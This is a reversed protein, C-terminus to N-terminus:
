VGPALAYQNNPLLVVTLGCMAQLIKRRYARSGAKVIGSDPNRSNGILQSEKLCRNRLALVIEHQIRERMGQAEPGDPTEAKPEAWVVRSKDVWDTCFVDARPLGGTREPQRRPTWVRLSTSDEPDALKVEWMAGAAAAVSQSGYYDSGEAKATHHSWVTCIGADNTHRLIRGIELEKADLGETLAFLSDLILLKAGVRAIERYLGSFGEPDFVSYRGDRRVIPLRPTYWYLPIAGVQLARAIQQFREVSAVHDSDQTLFMVSAQACPFKGFVPLGAAVEVALTQLAWSKGANPQAYVINPRGAALRLGECVWSVPPIQAAQIDAWDAVDPSSSTVLVSAVERREPEAPGKPSTSQSRNCPLVELVAYADSSKRESCHAHRCSFLGLGDDSPLIGTGSEDQNTHEHAWPCRVWVGDNPGEGRLWGARKFMAYLLTSEVPSTAEPVASEATATLRREGRLTRWEILGVDTPHTPLFAPQARNRIHAGPFPDPLKGHLVPEVFPIVFRWHPKGDVMHNHTTWGFGEYQDLQAWDPEADDYDILAFGAPGTNKASRSGECPGAVIYGAGGKHCNITAAAREAIFDRIDDLTDATYSATPNIQKAQADAAPDGTPRFYTFDYPM